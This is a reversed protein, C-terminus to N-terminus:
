YGLVTRWQSQIEATGAASYHVGDLTMTVGDDGGELWTREDHGAFCTTPNSAILDDIWGAFTNAAATCDHVWPKAIYIKVNTYKAILANIMYQMNEKTDAETGGAGRIDNAGINMLFINNAYRISATHYTLISDFSSKLQAVTYGMVAWNRPGDEGFSTGLPINVTALTEMLEHGWTSESEM